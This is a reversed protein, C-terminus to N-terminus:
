STVAGSPTLRTAASAAAAATRWGRGVPRTRRRPFGAVQLWSEPLGLTLVTALSAAEMSPTGTARTHCGRSRCGHRRRWDLRFSGTSEVLPAVAGDLAM